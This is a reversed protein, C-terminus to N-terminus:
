AEQGSVGPLHGDIGGALRDRAATLLAEYNRNFPELLSKDLQASVRSLALFEANHTLSLDGTRQFRDIFEGLVLAEDHTLAITIGNSM